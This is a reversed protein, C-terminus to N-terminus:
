EIVQGDRACQGPVIEILEYGWSDVSGGESLVGYKARHQSWGHELAEIAESPTDGLAVFSFSHTDMTAITM